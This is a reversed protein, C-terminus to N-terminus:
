LGPLLPFTTNWSAAPQPGSIARLTVTAFPATWCFSPCSTTNTTCFPCASRRATVTLLEVLSSATTAAPREAPSLTTTSAGALTDSPVFILSFRHLPTLSHYVHRGFCRQTPACPRRSSTPRM